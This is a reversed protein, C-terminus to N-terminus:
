QAGPPAAPKGQQAELQELGSVDLNKIDIEEDDPNLQEGLLLPQPPRGDWILNHRRQLYGDRMFTYEDGFAAAQMTEEVALLQARTEILNLGTLSSQAAQDSLYSSPSMVYAGYYDVSDRLTKPGLLPVVLYPGSGVGWHGLVQGFDENHKPLGPAMSAIDILGGLGLTTNFIVRGFDTTGQKWKGQLFNSTGSYVDTLNGFFNSVATRVPRPTVAAYGQAVPKLVAKDVASNFAYVKRNVPELPDYHNAPTACALLLLPSLLTPLLALRM